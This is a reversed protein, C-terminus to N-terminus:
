IGKLKRVMAALKEGEGLGPAALGNFAEWFREARDADGDLLAQVERLVTEHSPLAGDYLALRYLASLPPREDQEGIWNTHWVGHKLAFTGWRAGDFCLVSPLCCDSRDGEELLLGHLPPAFPRCDITVIDGVHFPTPVNLDSQKRFYDGDTKWARFWVPKEGLFIYTYTRELRGDAPAWKDAQYWCCWETADGITYPRDSDPEDMDEERIARVLQELSCYAGVFASKQGQLDEDYWATNLTFIDGSRLELEDLARRIAQRDEGGAFRAKIDLAAPAGAIIAELAWENLAKGALYSRMEPSPMFETLIEETERQTRM